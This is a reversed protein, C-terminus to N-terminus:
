SASILDAIPRPSPDRGGIRDGISGIWSPIGGIASVVSQTAAFVRDKLGITKALLSDDSRALPEIADNSPAQAIVLPLSAGVVSTRGRPAPKAAAAAMMGRPAAVAAPAEAEAAATVVPARSLTEAVAPQDKERAVEAKVFDVVLAHEDRLLQMMAASAPGAAPPTPMRGFQFHTFLLGGIVSALATPLIDHVLKGVLRRLLPMARGM